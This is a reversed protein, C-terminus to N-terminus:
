GGYVLECLWVICDIILGVCNGEDFLLVEGIYMGICLWILVLLM